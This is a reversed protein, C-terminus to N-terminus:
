TQKELEYVVRTGFPTVRLTPASPRGVYEVLGLRLLQDAAQWYVTDESTVNSRRARGVWRHVVLLGQLMSPTLSVPDCGAVTVWAGRKM